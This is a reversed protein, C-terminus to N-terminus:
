KREGHSVVVKVVGVGWVGEVRVCLNENGGM